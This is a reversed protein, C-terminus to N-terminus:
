GIVKVYNKYLRLIELNTKILTEKMMIIYKKYRQLVCKIMYM